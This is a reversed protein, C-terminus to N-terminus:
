KPRKINKIKLVDWKDLEFWEGQRRKNAYDVHLQAELAYPNQAKIVHIIEIPYPSGTQLARVRNEIAGQTVGIKYFEGAKLLYVKGGFESWPSDLNDKPENPTNKEIEGAGLGILFSVGIVFLIGSVALNAEIGIGCLAAAGGMLFGLALIRYVAGVINETDSTANDRVEKGLGIVFALGFLFLVGGLWYNQVRGVGLLAAIGVGLLLACLAFSLILKESYPREESISLSNESDAKPENDVYDEELFGKPENIAIAELKQQALGFSVGLSFLVGGVGPNPGIGVGLFVVVGGVLFSIALVALAGSFIGKEKPNLRYSLEKGLEVVSALGIALLVLGVLSNARIGIGFLVAIGGWIFFLGTVVVYLRINGSTM